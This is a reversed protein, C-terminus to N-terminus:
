HWASRQQLGMALAHILLGLTAGHSLLLLENVSSLLVQWLAVLLLGLLLMLALRGLLRPLRRRAEVALMRWAFVAVVAIAAFAILILTLRGQNGSALYRPLTALIALLVGVMVSLREPTMPTTM